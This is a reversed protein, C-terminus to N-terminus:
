LSKRNDAQNYFKFFSFLIDFLLIGPNITLKSLSTIVGHM